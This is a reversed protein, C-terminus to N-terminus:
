GAKQKTVEVEMSETAKFVMGQGFALLREKENETLLPIIEEFKSIIQKEKESLTM